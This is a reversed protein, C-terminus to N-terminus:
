EGARRRFYARAFAVLALSAPDGEAELGALAGDRDSLDKNQSLKFKAELRTIPLQFGVLARLDEAVFDPPLDSVWPQRRPAEYRHILRELIAYTASDDLVTPAGHVHVVAYNWTPVSPHNTYWAPSIYGHPGQFIALASAAGDFQRWHPNAHAVHGLIRERGTEERDLLLPIHSVLPEGHSWSILTAFGYADILDLAVARDEERFLKPTYM